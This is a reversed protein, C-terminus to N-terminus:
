LVIYIQPNCVYYSHVFGSHTVWGCHICSGGLTTCISIVLDSAIVHTCHAEMCENHFTRMKLRSDKALLLQHNATSNYCGSWVCALLVYSNPDNSNLCTTYANQPTKARLSSAYWNPQSAFILESRIICIETTFLIRIWLLFSNCM